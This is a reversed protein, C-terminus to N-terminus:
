LAPLNLNDINLEIKKIQSSIDQLIRLLVSIQYRHTIKQRSINNLAKQSELCAKKLIGIQSVANCYSSFGGAEMSYLIILSKAMIPMFYWHITEYSDFLSDEVCGNEDYSECLFNRVEDLYDLALQRLPHKTISENYEVTDFESLDAKEEKPWKDTAGKSEKISKELDELMVYIDDPDRGNALHQLKKHFEEHYVKCRARKKKPCKECWRDCFDYPAIQEFRANERKIKALISIKM